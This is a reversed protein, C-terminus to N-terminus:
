DCGPARHALAVLDWLVLLAFVRNKYLLRHRALAAADPAHSKLIGPRGEPLPSHRVVGLVELLRKHKSSIYLFFHSTAVDLLGSCAGLLASYKMFGMVACCLQCAAGLLRHAGFAGRLELLFISRRQEM